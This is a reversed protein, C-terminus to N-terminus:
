RRVKSGSISLRGEEKLCEGMEVERMKVYQMDRMADLCPIKSTSVTIMFSTKVNERQTTPRWGVRSEATAADLSSFDRGDLDHCWKERRKRSVARGQKSISKEEKTSPKHGNL